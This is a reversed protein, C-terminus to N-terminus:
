RGYTRRGRGSGGLHGPAARRRITSVSAAEGDASIVEGTIYATEDSLLFAAVAIRQATAARLLYTTAARAIIDNMGGPVQAAASFLETPAIGPAVANVHIGLRGGYV